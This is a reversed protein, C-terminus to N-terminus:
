CSDVVETTQISVREAKNRLLRIIDYWSAFEEGDSNCGLEGTFLKIIVSDGEVLPQIEHIM